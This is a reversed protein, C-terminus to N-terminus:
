LLIIVVTISWSLFQIHYPLESLWILSPIEHQNTKLKSKIDSHHLTSFGIFIRLRVSLDQLIKM